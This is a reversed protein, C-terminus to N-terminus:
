ALQRRRWLALVLVGLGALGAYTSPEPIAGTGGGEGPYLDATLNYYGVGSVEVASFFGGLNTALFHASTLGVASIDVVFQEGKTFMGAGTNDPFHFRLDFGTLGLTTLNQANNGTAVDGPLSLSTPNTVISFSLATPNVTAVNFVWDTVFEDPAIGLPDLTLRVTDAGQDAFTATLWGTAPVPIPNPPNPFGFVRDMGYTLTTATQNITASAILPTAALAIVLLKLAKMQPRPKPNYDNVVLARLLRGKQARDLAGPRAQRGWIVVGFM